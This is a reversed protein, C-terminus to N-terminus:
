NDSLVHCHHFPKLLGTNNYRIIKFAIKRTCLWEGTLCKRTAHMFHTQVQIHQFLSNRILICISKQLLIHNYM